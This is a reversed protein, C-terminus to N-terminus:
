FDICLNYFFAVKSHNSFHFQHFADYFLASVHQWLPFILQKLVSGLFRIPIMPNLLLSFRISLPFLLKLLFMFCNIQTLPLCIQLKLKRM